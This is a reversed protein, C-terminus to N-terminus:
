FNNILIAELSVTASSISEGDKYFKKQKSGDICSQGKMTGDRKRKILNIVELVRKKDEETMDEVRIPAVVPKGAAAGYHLQKFEKLMATVAEEGFVKFGKSAPMEKNDVVEKGQQDKVIRKQAFVFNMVTDMMSKNEESMQKRQKMLFQLHVKPRQRKRVRQLFYKHRTVEYKKKAESSVELVNRMGKNIPSLCRLGPINSQSEHERTGTGDGVVTEM